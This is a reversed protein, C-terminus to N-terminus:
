GVGFDILASWYCCFLAAFIRARPTKAFFLNFVPSSFDNFRTFLAVKDLFSFIAYNLFNFVIEDLQIEGNSKINMKGADLSGSHNDIALKPFNPNICGKLDNQSEITKIPEFTAFLNLPLTAVLVVFISFFNKM